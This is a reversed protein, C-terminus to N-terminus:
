PRMVLPSKPIQDAACMGGSFTNGFEHFRLVDHGPNLERVRPAFAGHL